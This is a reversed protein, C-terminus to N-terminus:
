HEPAKYTTHCAKCAGGVQMALPNLVAPDSTQAAAAALARTSSALAAAKAAFDAPHVWIDAKASTKLGSEPGTGPPFWGPAKSALDALQQASTRVVAADPTGAHLQDFIAKFNRGIQKM